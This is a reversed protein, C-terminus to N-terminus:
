AEEDTQGVAPVVAPPHEAEVVYTTTARVLAQAIRTRLATQGTPPAAVAVVASAAAHARAVAAAYAAITRPDDEVLSGSDSRGCREWVAAAVVEMLPDGDIWAANDIYPKASAQLALRAKFDDVAKRDGPTLRVNPNNGCRPGVPQETM